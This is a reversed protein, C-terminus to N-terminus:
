NGASLSLKQRASKLEERESSGASVELLTKFYQSAAAHNGSADAAMGAGYLANFRRPAVELVAKYEVLADAPRQQLAFMEALMERAPIVAGPIVAHKDMSGELEAAARLLAIAQQPQKKGVAIWGAVERRQVEVQNGWYTNNQKNTADRLVALTEEAKDAQALNGSRASGIGIAQWSIAEAWPVAATAPHLTAASTWDRRELAYRAPIAALAYDGTLTLGAVQPLSDVEVVM